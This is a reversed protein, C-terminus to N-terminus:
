KIANYDFLKKCQSKGNLYPLTFHLQLAHKSRYIYLIDLTWGYYAIGEVACLAVCAVEQIHTPTTQGSTDLGSCNARM